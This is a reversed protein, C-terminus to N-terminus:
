AAQRRELRARVAALAEGERVLTVCTTAGAPKDFDPFLALSAEGEFANRNGTDLYSEAPLGEALIIDHAALEVHHYTVFRTTTERFITTGNVLAQAEFLLGDLYIAHHPSVRLDREPLGPAIAGAVIRVPYLAAADPRHRLDLHRKGTWVVKASLPGDERVTVLVDGVKIDEVAIEGDIGLIRTGTCYCPNATAAAFTGEEVLAFGSAYTGSVVFSEAGGTGSITVVTNGGSGSSTLTAGAYSIFGAEVVDGAVFGIITASNLSFSSSTLSPTVAVDILGGSGAFTITGSTSAKASDLVLTGGSITLNDVYNRGNDIITGGSMIVDGSTVASTTSINILGGSLVTESNVVNLPGSILQSGGVVDGAGSGTLTESGGASIVTGSDFSAMVASGGSFIIGSILKGGALGSIFGGQSVTEAIATGGNSLVLTGADLGGSEVGSSVLIETGGSLIITGTGAAGSLTDTSGASVTMPDQTTGSGATLNGGALTVDITTAGSIVTVSGGSTVIGGSDVAGSGTLTETGGQGIITHSDTGGSVVVAGSIVSGNSVTGGSAVTVSAGSGVTFNVLSTASSVTLDTTVKTVSVTLEVHGNADNSSIFSGPNSGAFEFTEASESGTGSSVTVYTNGGSLVSTVVAGSAAGFATIDIVDGPGFGSLTALMGFGGSVNGSSNVTEIVLDGGAGNFVLAGAVTAKPSNVIVTGGDVITNTLDVNKSIFISGGSQVTIDTAAAGTTIVNLAGGSFVTEGFVAATGNSVNQVGSIADGFASGLVLETGGAAISTGSDFGGADVIISGGSLITGKVETGGASITVVQGGSVIDTSATGSATGSSGTGSSGTGSSGTGSSGGSSTVATSETLTGGGSVNATYTLAGGAGAFIFSEAGGTGSITATTNAGSTITLTGNLGVAGSTLSIVDDVGFGSLVALDGSSGSVFSSYIITGAGDFIVGGTLEAKGSELVISGGSLVTNSAQANGSIYIAGASDVFTSTAAGGKIFLDIQGGSGVTENSVSGDITGSSVNQIGFVTDGVASGYVIESGGAQVTAGLDLGSVVGLAGAQITTSIATGGAAVTGSLGSAIVKDPSVTGSSVTMTGSLMSSQVAIEVGSTTDAALVLSGPEYSGSLVFSEAVGGSTVTVDTNGAASSSILTAGSGIFALDIVDAGAFDAIVASLGGLGNDGAMVIEGGGAFLIGGDIQASTGEVVIEGGAIVAGFASAASILLEGGAAVTTSSVSAGAFDAVVGGFSVVDGSAVGTGSVFQTGFVTDGIASGAIMESGATAVLSGTEFGGSSIFLLGASNVVVASATGGALVTLLSGNSVTTGASTVQGGSIVMSTPASPAEAIGRVNSETNGSIVATSSFGPNETILTAFSENAPVIMNAVTDTVSVVYTQDLDGIGETTAFLTVTGNANLTGTLGILGSTGDTATDPSLPLGANLTYDLSWVGTRTNLTWKQLGGDGLGGAKPNGGDAVYLTTPNAFFYNEPSLNVSKGIDADNIGNATAATLVVSTEIGSLFAPTTASSPLGGFTAIGDTPGVKSDASVYLQGNYIEVDRADNATDIATASTAGDVAEFVGQTVDKNGQGALYFVSGDITAVSRPNNVNFVDFLATSTDVSGNYSIDAVVRSVATYQGGQVSTSQALAANGYVAAGGENYTTANVGYGAIVLSQGNGALQLTGESSSGYEGSIPDNAGNATQPLVMEGIIAGTTPDIEELTITSAANDPNVGTLTADAGGVVSVVIDGATFGSLTPITGSTGSM